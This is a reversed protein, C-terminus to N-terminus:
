PALCTRNMLVKGTYSWSCRMTLLTWSLTGWFTKDEAMDVQEESELPHQFSQLLCICQILPNLTVMFLKSISFILSYGKLIHHGWWSTVLYQVSSWQNLIILSLYLKPWVGLVCCHRMDGGCEKTMVEVSWLMSDTMAEHENCMQKTIAEYEAEMWSVRQPIYYWCFLLNTWM